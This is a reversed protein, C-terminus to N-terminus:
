LLTILHLITLLFLMASEKKRAKGNREDLCGLVGTIHGGYIYCLWQLCYIGVSNPYIGM